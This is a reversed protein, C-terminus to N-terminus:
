LQAKDFQHPLLEALTYEKVPYDLANPKMENCDVMIIPLAPAFESLVQRCAGCPAAGGTTAIAVAIFEKKGAAVAAFIASREACITLGYSANEVNAGSIITGDPTLLAAGVKFKSYPAYARERVLVAAAILDKRQQPSM